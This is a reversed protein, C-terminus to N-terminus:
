SHRRSSSVRYDIQYDFQIGLSCKTLPVKLPLSVKYLSQLVRLSKRSEIRFGLMQLSYRGSYIKDLLVEVQGFNFSSKSIYEGTTDALAVELKDVRFNVKFVVKDLLKRM